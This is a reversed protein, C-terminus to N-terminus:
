CVESLQACRSNLRENDEKVEHLKAREARQKDECKTFKDGKKSSLPIFFM